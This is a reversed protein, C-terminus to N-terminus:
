TMVQNGNPIYPCNDQRNYVGDGDIDRQCADGVSNGDFDEQGSNPINPCNDKRCKDKAMMPVDPCILEVNPWGDVDTDKGCVKGDGAWLELLRYYTQRLSFPTFTQRVHKNKFYYQKRM